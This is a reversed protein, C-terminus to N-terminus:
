QESDTPRQGLNMALCGVALPECLNVLVALHQILSGDPFLQHQACANSLPERTAQPARACDHFSDAAVACLPAKSGSRRPTQYNKERIGAAGFAVFADVDCASTARTSSHAVSTANSRM